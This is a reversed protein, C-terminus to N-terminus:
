HNKLRGGVGHACFLLLCYAKVLKASKVFRGTAKDERLFWRAFPPVQMAIRYIIVAIFQVRFDRMDIIPRGTNAVSVAGSHM